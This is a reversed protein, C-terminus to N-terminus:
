GKNNNMPSLPFKIDVKIGHWLFYLWDSHSFVTACEDTNWWVKGNHVANIIDHWTNEIVHNLEHFYNYLAKEHYVM